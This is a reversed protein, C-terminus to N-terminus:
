WSVEARREFALIVRKFSCAKVGCGVVDELRRRRARSTNSAPARREMRALSASAKM